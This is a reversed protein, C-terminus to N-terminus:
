SQGSRPFNSNNCSRCIYYPEFGVGPNQYQMRVLNSKTDYCTSCFPGDKAGNIDERWYVNNEFKLSVKSELKEKLLANEKKHEGLEQVVGMLESQLDLINRYLEINDIEKVLNVVEKANEIIGM